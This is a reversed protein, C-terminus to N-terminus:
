ILWGHFTKHKTKWNRTKRKVEAILERSCNEVSYSQLTCILNELQELEATDMATVKLNAIIIELSNIADYLDNFLPLHNITKVCPRLMYRLHSLEDNPTEKVINAIGHMQEEIQQVEALAEKYQDVNFEKEEWKGTKSSYHDIRVFGRQSSSQKISEM